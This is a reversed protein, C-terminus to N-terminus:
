RATFIYLRQMPMTDVIRELRFGAPEWEVLVQEKSMRHESRIRLTTERYEVLAVRGNPKLSARIAELMPRPQQFEHYVDVLLVWDLRGKPLRPDNELGLIPVINTIKEKAANGRLADLMEPQIDNAYVIGRPAVARALRRTYFGSGAGVDAVVDGDRLAMAQLVIDPREEEERTSRELWEVSAPAVVRAPTRRPVAADQCSLLALLLLLRGIM